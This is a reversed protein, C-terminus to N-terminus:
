ASALLLEWRMDDHLAGCEETCRFQYTGEDDVTFVLRQPEDAEADLFAEVGVRTIMLGHHELEPDHHPVELAEELSTGEVEEPDPVRGAAIDDRVRQRWDIADITAGVPGPLQEIAGHAHDNVAVLEVEAGVPAELVELETGDEDFLAFGWHYAVVYATVKLDGTPVDGPEDATDATDDQEDQEDQSDTVEGVTDDDADVSEDAEDTPTAQEPDDEVPGGGCSATVLTLLGFVVLTRMRLLGLM